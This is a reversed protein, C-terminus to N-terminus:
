FSRSKYTTALNPTDAHLITVNPRSVPSSMPSVPAAAVAVGSASAPQGGGSQDAERDPKAPDFLGNDVIANCLAPSTDSRTGQQTICFCYRHVEGAENVLREESAVCSLKPYTVPETLEDYAPATAPLGEIRPIWKDFYDLGSFSESDETFGAGFLPSDNAYEESALSEDALGADNVFRDYVRYGLFLFLVAALPFLSLKFWPLKVTKHHNEDSSASSYFDFVRSPIPKSLKEYAVLRNPKQPYQQFQTFIFHKSYNPRFEEALHIHRSILGQISPDFQGTAKQATLIFDFGRYRHKKLLDVSRSIEKRNIDRYPWVDSFEDVLFISNDPFRPTGDELVEHWNRVEDATVRQWKKLPNDPYDSPNLNQDEPCYYYVPRDNAKSLDLRKFFTFGFFKFGKFVYGKLKTLLWYIANATKGSGNAGTYLYIM